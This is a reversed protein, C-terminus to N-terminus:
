GIMSPNLKKYEKNTALINFADSTADVADDKRTKSVGDFGELENYYDDNWSGIVAKVIGNASATSFNEFRLLKSKTVGVKIFKVPIGESAFLKSQYLKATIGAQGPDQPLYLQVKGYRKLDDKHTDIITQLVENSRKRYRVVDEVIYDNFKTKAILVGATWDPNPYAESPISGALDYCRVRKVVHKRYEMDEPNMPNLKQLWSRKFYGSEEPRVDWNGYYQREVEVPSRALLTGVYDPNLALMIPNDECTAGIFRFSKPNCNWKGSSNKGMREHYQDFLEKHSFGWVLENNIMLYWREVGNKSPDPRGAHPHEKPYLYWDIWKRLYSDPDPNCTIWINKTMKAKGRLRTMMWLIDEENVQTGEDVMIASVQIGQFADKGAQGDYGTFFIKAGTSFKVLMPQKTIECKPDLKKYLECAEDFAGGAQRLFTANKRVVVGVFNPDKWWRLFRLLGQYTKGSNGSIFVKGNQRMVLFTSPVSFCYKYGDLSPVVKIEQKYGKGVFSRFGQGSLNCNLTYCSDKETKVISTNYGCAHAAFQIFDVNEKIKSYYRLSKKDEDVDIISGDWFGVESMIVELQHQSCKYWESSFLKTGLNDRFYFQHEKGNSYKDDNVLNYRYECDIRDLLKTLREAKRDKSVRIFVSKFGNQSVHKITGDAQIAVQLRITDDSLDLGKNVVNYTTKIKGTWGKSKSKLHRSKVDAWSIVKPTKLDHENFYPVRHEDTLIFDLGRATMQTFQECPLKIYELPKVWDVKNTHSTWQAVKGGDYDSIRKWGYESLYEADSRFCGMSGGYTTFFSDSQLFAAQKKSSPAFPNYNDLDVM